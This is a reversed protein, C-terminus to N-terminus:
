GQDVGSGACTGGVLRFGATGIKFIGPHLSAAKTASAVSVEVGEEAVAVKEEVVEM